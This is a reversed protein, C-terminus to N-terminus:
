KSYLKLLALVGAQNKVWETDTHNTLLVSTAPINIKALWNLM